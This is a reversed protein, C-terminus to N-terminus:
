KVEFPIEYVLTAPQTGARDYSLTVVATYRGPALEGAWLANLKDRQDPMYRKEEIKGRGALEGDSDLIALAGRLRVHATSRNRLDLSLQLESSQTPPRIQGGLMEIHYEANDETTLMILGNVRVTVSATVNGPKQESEPVKDAAEAEFIPSTYYGGAATQPVSIIAKVNASAGPEIILEPPSFQVWLSASRPLTGPRGDIRKNNEDRWYDGLSFRFRLRTGTGNFITFAEDYTAGRKVTADVYIPSIGLSQEQAQVQGSDFLLFTFVFAAVISHRTM